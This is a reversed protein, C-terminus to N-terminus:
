SKPAVIPPSTRKFIHVGYQNPDFGTVPTFSRWFLEPRYLDHWFVPLTAVQEYRLDPRNWSQLTQAMQGVFPGFAVLYDPPVQGRFHIAPLQAFDPRPPWDLQWAYLARPARFMLPYTSYDPLVWISEGDPVNANIWDATPTYPEPPPNLLERAYSALTSQVGDFLLPGGNCLNTGFVLVAAVVALWAHRGCLACIAGAELVIALPIIAVLYRVDAVSTLKVLQPSICAIVTLYVFIGLCGRVLWARRTYFGVAFALGMVPLAFFECQDADRWCWYYLALRDLITNAGQYAGFGTKLPNWVLAAAGNVIIQPGFLLVASSWAPPWKKRGWLVYDVALGAYLAAYDMYNSVFLLSSLGAIALLTGPSPRGQWYFYLVATSFLITPAYYHSQRFFLILSVNGILGIGLVALATLSERRAGYLLLAFTALGILAFPARAAWANVSFLWFSSATIYTALPPLSRDHLDRLLIGGRYAVINGHDMVVSTDGTRLVGKAVLGNMTEDDWLAYHGLRCFLLAGLVVLAGAILALRGGAVGAFM